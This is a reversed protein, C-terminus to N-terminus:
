NGQSKPRKPGPSDKPKVGPRSLAEKPVSFLAAVVKGFREFTAEGSPAPEGDDKAM